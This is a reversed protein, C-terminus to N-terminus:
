DTYEKDMYLTHLIYPHYSNTAITHHVMSLLDVVDLAVELFVSICTLTPYPNHQKWRLSLFQPNFIWM